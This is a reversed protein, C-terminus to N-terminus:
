DKDNDDSSPAKVGPVVPKPQPPAEVSPKPISVSAAGDKTVADKSPDAPPPVPIAPPEVAPLTKELEATGLSVGSPTDTGVVTSGTVAADSPPTPVVPQAAIAPAGIGPHVVADKIEALEYGAFAFAAAMFLTSFTLAMAWVKASNNSTLM